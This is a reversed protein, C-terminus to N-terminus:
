IRGADKAQLYRELETLMNEPTEMADLVIINHGSHQKLWKEHLDHLTQLHEMSVTKEEIRNRKKIRNYAVTPECRLYVHFDPARKVARNLAASLDRLLTSHMPTLLRHREILPLFTNDASTLCREMVKPMYMMRQHNESLGTLAAVQFAFLWKSPKQYSRQLLNIGDIERWEQTPETLFSIDEGFHNELHKMFTSKGAGINGEITILDNDNLWKEIHPFQSPLSPTPSPSRPPTSHERQNINPASTPTPSRITISAPHEPPTLEDTHRIVTQQSAPENITRYLGSTCTAPKTPAPRTANSRPPSSIPAFRGSYPHRARANMSRRRNIYDCHDSSHEDYGFTRCRHCWHTHSLGEVVNYFAASNNINCEPRNPRPRIISPLHITRSDYPSPHRGDINTARGPFVILCVWTIFRHHFVLTIRRHHLGVRYHETIRQLPQGSNLLLCQHHQHHISLSRVTQFKLSAAKNDFYISM